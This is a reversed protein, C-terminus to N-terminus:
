FAFREININKAPVGARLTASGAAEAWSDPGCIFVDHEVLDPVLELLAVHDDAATNESQWSAKTRRRHGPLYVTRVGRRRALEDLEQRFVFDKESAARYILVAQGSEYDLDELLARIPTIGIGSAMLTLKRGQRAEGTFRGYPGEFLVPTGPLLARIRMSNPGVEKATIRLTDGNPAASLAYPNERTWGPGDKFRWMCFQGARAQLRQLDNGRLYVSYNGESEEVVRDVVLRHRRNRSIPLVVRFIMLSALASLYLGVLCIQMWLPRLDSGTWIEHPIVLGMGLFTYLHLLHWTHYRLRRRAARASTFGVLILLLTGATALAMGRWETVMWVMSEFLTIDDRLSYGLALLAIHVLMLNLSTFGVVRHIRVIKDRGYAREIAPIRAMLFVQALMLDSSLLGALRGPYAFLGQPSKSIMQAASDNSVWVFSVLALSAWFAVTCFIRVRAPGRDGNGSTRKAPPPTRLLRTRDNSVGPAQQDTQYAM